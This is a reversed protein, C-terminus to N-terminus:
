TAGFRAFMLGWRLGRDSITIETAGVARASAALILAGAAIVDARKPSLGKLVRKESVSLACLTGALDEIETTQIKVGHIRKADYPDVERLMACLTTATGAVAVLQAQTKPVDAFTRALHAELAKREDATPPDSQLFRETMRVSGVDFSHRFHIGSIGGFMFETSGGGIDLAVAGSPGDFESAVSQFSLRAEEAGSIVEVKLDALNACSLIFDQSNRADRAASTAVTAIHQAGLARAEAAFRVLTAVTEDIAEPLLTKSRDVGRGLRTIEARELIPVFGGPQATSKEAVLLVVSNTGVDITAFRM